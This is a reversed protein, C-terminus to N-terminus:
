CKTLRGGGDVLAQFIELGKKKGSIGAHRPTRASPSASAAEGNPGLIPTKRANERGLATETETQSAPLRLGSGGFDLVQAGRNAPLRARRDLM